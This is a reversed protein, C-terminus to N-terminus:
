CSSYKNKKKFFEPHLEQCAHEKIETRLNVSNKSFKQLKKRSDSAQRSKCLDKTSKSSSFQQFELGFDWVHFAVQLHLFFIFNKSLSFVSHFYELDLREINVYHLNM